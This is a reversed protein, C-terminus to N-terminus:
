KGNDKRIISNKGFLRQCQRMFQLKSINPSKAASGVCDLIFHPQFGHDFFQFGIALVCADYDTGVVYVETESADFIKKGVKFKDGSFMRDKLGYTEKEIVKATEPLTIAFESLGSRKM